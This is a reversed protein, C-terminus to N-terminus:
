RSVPLAPQRYAPFYGEKNEPDCNAERCLRAYVPPNYVQKLCQLQFEGAGFRRKFQAITDGEQVGGGLNFYPIGLSQLFHVGYWLLCVTHAQGESLSVNFLYEAGYPTYVFVSVAEIQHNGYVGVTVVNELDLLYSLTEQSFNYVQSANRQSFFPHYHKLFFNKLLPKDLLFRNKLDDYGKLQRKRNLSLNQFLKDPTLQLDLIYLTNYRYVEDPQLYTNNEFLPNLGIYGSVYGLAKIFSKWHVQFDALDHNGVFGSFGYPTVIDVQGWYHREAIPCLVKSDGATLLYLYTQFGTTLHMAYCSEWTHGFAHPVGELAEKWRLPSHLPILEQNV